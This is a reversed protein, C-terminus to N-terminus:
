RLLLGCIPPRSCALLPECRRYGFRPCAGPRGVGFWAAVGLASSRQERGRVFRRPGCDVATWLGARSGGWPRGSTGGGAAIGGFDPGGTTWSSQDVM